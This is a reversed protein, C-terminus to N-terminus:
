QQSDPPTAEVNPTDTQPPEGEPNPPAEEAEEGIDGQEGEPTDATSSTAADDDADDSQPVIEGPIDTGSTGSRIRDMQDQLESMRSAMELTEEAPQFTPDIALARETLDITQELDGVAFAELADLYLTRVQDQRDGRGRDGLAFGAQLSFRDFATLQTTMDLTYNITLTMDQIRVSGGMSLRPNGGKIQYGGRVTFFDTVTLATGIAYGVPPNSLDSFLLFPVNVDFSVLWPRLPSYAIGTSWTTPLPEELVNPGINRLTTGVAVNRERSPYFKLLDFKSLLGFDAMVGAASQDAVIIEPIDRYAVKLNTGAAVGDFYFSNLFNYSVNFAAVAETYRATAQQVGFDDYETFPVHLYKIGVGTGFHEIRTTYAASEMNTDAILNNHFVALETNNLSSSAAPNAELFTVDRAAATYASGLAEYEGGMPIDLTPFVTLGTNEVDEVSYRGALDGYWTSFTEESVGSACIRGAVLTGLIFVFIKRDSRGMRHKM